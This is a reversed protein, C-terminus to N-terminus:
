TIRGRTNGPNPVLTRWNNMDEEIESDQKIGKEWEKLLKHIGEDM